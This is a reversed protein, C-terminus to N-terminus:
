KRGKESVVGDGSMSADSSTVKFFMKAEDVTYTYSNTDVQVQTWTEADPTAAIYVYYSRAHDVADWNITMTGDGNDVFAISAPTVANFAEVTFTVPVTVDEGGNSSVVVNASYTGSDMGAADFNLTVDATAGSNVTGSDDTLTLWSPSASIAVDDIAWGAYQLSSDSDLRFRIKISEDAYSALDIESYIWADNSLATSQGPVPDCDYKNYSALLSWTTGNDTTIEVYGNDYFSGELYPIHWFSLVANPVNTLDIPNTTILIDDAYASYADHVSQTGSHYYTTSVAWEGASEDTFTGFGDEFGENVFYQTDTFEVSATFELGAEGTNGITLLETGSGEFDVTKAISPPTVSIVPPSTMSFTFLYAGDVARTDSERKGRKVDELDNGHVSIEDDSSPLPLDGYYAHVVYYMGTTPISYVLQEDSGSGANDVNTILTEDADYLAIEGDLLSLGDVLQTLTVVAGATATFKYFDLDDVPYIETSTDSSWTQTDTPSIQTATTFDNNPEQIDLGHGIGSLTVANVQDLNDTVNLDTTIPGDAQPSFLVDVTMTDNARLSLPYENADDLTFHTADAFAVNSIILEGGGTNTITFTTPDSSSGVDVTGFDNSTPNVTFAPTSAVNVTVVWDVITGDEAEVTYTVPNTFDNATVGSVQEVGGVTAEAGASLTFSPVLATLVTGVSVTVNITHEDVNITAPEAQEAFSFATFDTGSYLERVAVNDVFLDNDANFVTSEGYFGLWVIGSYSSLDIVVEEGTYSIDGFAPTTTNDWIQLATAATWDTASTSIWVEFRDDDGVSEPENSNGYDTLALDFSLFYSSTAGLDIPPTIMWEDRNTSYINLKACGTDGNNLYGDETWLSTTGVPPKGAAETWNTAPYGGTFDELFPAVLTPDVRTTFSWVPGAAEDESYGNKCVVKWYYTTNYDLDPTYTEVAAVNDLVKTVPTEETGFYLDITDTGFGNTWTLDSTELVDTALDAPSPNTPVEAPLIAAAPHIVHDIYHSSGYLGTRFGIYISSEAVTSLDVEQHKWTNSETYTITELLSWTTGDASYVIELSGSTSSNRAWFSLVDGSAVDLLPTYLLYQTSSSGDKYASGSGEYSTTSRSWGDNTWGAPPVATEFGEFVYDAPYAKGTLPISHTTEGTTNDIIQLNATKEGASQPAFAVDVTESNGPAITLPYSHGDTLQFDVADAGTIAIAPNIVLDGGGSNTITFTEAESTNGAILSGFDYTEPNISFVPLVPIEEITVDDIYLSYGDDDISRFAIYQSNEYASLDITYETWTTPMNTGAVYYALDTTFNGAASNDDAIQVKLDTGSSSSGKLWFKLRYDSTGFSLEPTILLHEGGAGDWPAKACYTESHPSFNSQNWVNSGSVTIQSWSPPASPSGIWTDEFGENYPFVTVPPFATTFGEPGAWESTSEEVVSQVYFDYGTGATLGTLPYPNESTASIMTGEGQTFGAEGWEINWSTAEGNETWGLNATTQTISGATLNTPAPNDPIFLEPGAFDDIYLYYENTSIAQVAVYVEQDNYASLDYSYQTYTTPPGVNSALTVTFNAKATGTTSLLVNFEELFYTSHNKAWFSISNNSASPVLKPTILWDDHASSSYSIQACKDGTNPTSGQFWTNADGDNIITWDTPPFTGEFGENLPAAFLGLTLAMGICLFLLHKKM